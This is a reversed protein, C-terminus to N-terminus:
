WYLKLRGQQSAFYAEDLTLIEGDANLRMGSSILHCSKCRYRTTIDFSLIKGMLLGPLYKPLKWRPQAKLVLVDLMHDDIRADPAIPIGGGFVGGNAVACILVQDVIRTDDDLTLDVSVPKFAFIARIVGYLYPLLGKVYKKAREAFDLTLVDFGTGCVNLFLRDNLKGTDVDRPQHNLIFDLAALPDKPIKATKIFDNGTGSPIVGMPVGTDMLGCAVEFATGDGGVALVADAGRQVAEKALEEGHGPHSTFFSECLIGKEKLVKLILKSVEKARGNGAVPNIILSYM